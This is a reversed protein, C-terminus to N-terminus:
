LETNSARPTPVGGMGCVCVCVCVFVQLILAVFLYGGFVAQYIEQKNGRGVRWVWKVGTCM